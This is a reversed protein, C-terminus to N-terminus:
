ENRAVEEPSPDFNGLNLEVDFDVTPGAQSQGSKTGRLAVNEFGPAQELWRVFDFIGTELFSSGRLALTGEEGITLSNLWVDSPMCHAIHRLTDATPPPTLHEALKNLQELKALSATQRLHLERARAQAVALEDIQAQLGNITSQQHFNLLQIGLALLLVAAIPALSRLLIPKLPERSIATIHDMFNPADSEGAPLYTTLMAGLVPVTAPDDLGKTLQWTAQIEHPSVVKCQLGPVVAFAHLAAAVSQRDGSLYIRTLKPTSEGLIRNVHRELRGLHTRLVEVLEEPTACSGPRYELLLRGRHSVGIEASMQDMHILVTPEDPADQLRGVARSNAVLAPEISEIRLGTRESAESLTDLTKANCVSAVAYSHRADLSKSNSVMVKEGTGLLLYLQSRQQLQQLESRVEDTSGVIAKTVCYRGGLVFRVQCGALNHAEVLSKLAATLEAQGQDTHPSTAEQRWPLTLAQVQDTSETAGRQLIAVRLEAEAVEIVAIRNDANKKRDRLRRDRRSDRRDSNARRDAM